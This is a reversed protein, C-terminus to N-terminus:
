KTNWLYNQAPSKGKVMIANLLMFICSHPKKDFQFSVADHVHSKVRLPLTVHNEPGTHLQNHQNSTLPLLFRILAGHLTRCVCHWQLYFCLFYNTILQGESTIGHQEVSTWQTVIKGTKQRDCKRNAFFQCHNEVAPTDNVVWKIQSQSTNMHVLLMFLPLSTHVTTAWIRGLPAVEEASM